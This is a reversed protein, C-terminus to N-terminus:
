LIEDCLFLFGDFGDKSNLAALGRGICCDTNAINMDGVPARVSLLIDGRKPWGLHLRQLNVFLHFYGVSIQLVKSFYQEMVKM